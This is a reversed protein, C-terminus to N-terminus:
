NRMKILGYHFGPRFCNRSRYYTFYVEYLEFPISLLDDIYNVFFKLTDTISPLDPITFQFGKYDYILGAIRISRDKVHHFFKQHFSQFDLYSRQIFHQKDNQSVSLVIFTKRAGVVKVNFKM